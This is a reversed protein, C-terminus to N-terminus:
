IAPGQALTVTVTSTYVGVKADKPSLTLTMPALSITYSGMGENIPASLINVGSVSDILGTGILINTIPTSDTGAVISVPGLGLSNLSLKNLANNYTTDSTFQTAALSVSWGDGTGRADTLTMNTVNATTTKTTGDLIVNSFDSIILEGITASPEGTVSVTPDAAYAVIGINTVIISAIIGCIALKKIKNFM